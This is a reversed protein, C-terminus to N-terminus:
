AHLVDAITFFNIRDKICMFVYFVNLKLKPMTILSFVQTNENKELGQQPNATPSTHLGFYKLM